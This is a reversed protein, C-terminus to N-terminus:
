HSLSNFRRSFIELITTFFLKFNSVEKHVILKSFIQM